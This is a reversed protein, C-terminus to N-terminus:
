RLQVSLEGAGARSLKLKMWLYSVNCAFVAITDTLLPTYLFISPLLPTKGIYPVLMNTAIFLSIPILKFHLCIFVSFIIISDHESIIKLEDLYLIRGRINFPM